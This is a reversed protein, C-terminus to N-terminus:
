CFITLIMFPTPERLTSNNKGYLYKTEVPNQSTKGWPLNDDGCGSPMGNYGIAVIRKLPNVICAGVQSAPDKSRMASLFAVSLYYEEWKLFNSRKNSSRM